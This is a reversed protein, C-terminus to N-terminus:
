QPARGRHVRRQQPHRHAPQPLRSGGRGGAAGLERLRQRQAREAQLRARAEDRARLVFRAIAVSALNALHLLYATAGEDVPVSGEDGFTGGGLIGLTRDVIGIPVNVVTRNDLRRAVHLKEVSDRADPIVIPGEDRRLATFLWDGAAPTSPLEERIAAANPGAVAVLLAQEDEEREIVYLWANTLGFRAALERRVLEIVADYDDVRCLERAFRTLSCDTPTPAVPEAM